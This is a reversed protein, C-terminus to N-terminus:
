SGHVGCHGNPRNAAISAAGGVARRGGVQGMTQGLAQGAQSLTHGSPQRPHYTGGHLAVAAATSHKSADASAQQANHAQRDPPPSWLSPQRM